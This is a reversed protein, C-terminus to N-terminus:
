RRCFTLPFLETIFRFMVKWLRFVQKRARDKMEGVRYSHNVQIATVILQALYSAPELTMFTRYRHPLKETIRPTVAYQMAGDPMSFPELTENYSYPQRLLKTFTRHHLPFRFRTVDTGEAQGPWRIGTSLNV